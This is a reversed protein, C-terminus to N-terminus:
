SELSEGSTAPRTLLRVNESVALTHVILVSAAFAVLFARWDVREYAAPVYRFCAAGFAVFALKFLFTEVFAQLARQPRTRFVHRMWAGGLLSVGTGCLVGALVGMGERGEARLAVFGGALLVALTVLHTRTM